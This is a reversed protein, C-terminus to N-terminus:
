QLKLSGKERGTREVLARGVAAYQSCVSGVAILPRRSDPLATRLKWNIGEKKGASEGIGRGTSSGTADRGDAVCESARAVIKLWVGFGRADGMLETIGQARRHHQLRPV